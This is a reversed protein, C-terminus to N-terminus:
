GSVGEHNLFPMRGAAPSSSMERQKWGTSLLGCSPLPYVGERSKAKGRTSWVCIKTGSTNSSMQWIWMKLSFKWFLRHRGRTRLEPLLTALHSFWPAAEACKEVILSFHEKTNPKRGRRQLYHADGHHLTLGIFCVLSNIHSWIFDGPFFEKGLIIVCSLGWLCLCLVFPFFGFFLFVSLLSSTLIISSAM